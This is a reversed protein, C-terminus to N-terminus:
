FGYFREFLPRPPLPPPTVAAAAPDEENKAWPSVAAINPWNTLGVSLLEKPSISGDKERQVAWVGSPYAYYGESLNKTGLDNWAPKAYLGDPRAELADIRGYRRKDPYSKPDVDPHGVYIPVGRFANKLRGALSNFATVMAEGNARTLNQKGLAHPFQGWPTIQQWEGDGALPRDNPASILLDAMVAQAANAALRGLDRGWASFAQWLRRLGEKFVGCVAKRARKLANSLDPAREPRSAAQPANRM